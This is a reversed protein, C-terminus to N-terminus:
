IASPRSGTRNEPHHGTGNYAALEVSEADTVERRESAGVDIDRGLVQRQHPLQDVFRESV